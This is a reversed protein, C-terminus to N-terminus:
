GGVIQLTVTLLSGDPPFADGPEFSGGRRHDRITKLANSLVGGPCSYLCLICGSPWHGDHEENGGFRIELLPGEDPSAGMLEELTYSRGAGEWTIHVEVRTGTVRADPGPVFPIARRTWAAMPVGGGDQAGLDRLARAVEEDEVDTVMLSKGAAGGSRSVLAHYQNDPATSQRFASPRAEATLTITRAHANIRLGASPSSLLVPVPRYARSPPQPVSLPTGPPQPARLLHFPVPGVAGPFLVSRAAGLADVPAFRGDVATSDGAAPSASGGLLLLFPLIISASRSTRPSAAGPLAPAPSHLPSGPV